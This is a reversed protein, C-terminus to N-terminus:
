PQKEGPDLATPAPAPLPDAAGLRMGRELHSFYLTDIHGCTCNIDRGQARCTLACPAALANARWGVAWPGPTRHPAGHGVPSLSLAPLPRVCAPALVALGLAALLHTKRM